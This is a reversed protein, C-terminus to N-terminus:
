RKGDRDMERKLDKSKISDRKDYSKKGQALGIEVKIFGRDSIFIKLPVITFGREKVKGELKRLESKNLLLKRLRRPEHNNHTGLRYEAIHM